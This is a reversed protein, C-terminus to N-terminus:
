WGAKWHSTPSSWCLGQLEDCGQPCCDACGCFPTLNELIYFLYSVTLLARSSIGIAPFWVLRIVLVAICEPVFEHGQDEEEFMSTQCAEFLSMFSLLRFNGMRTVILEHFLVYLFSLRLHNLSFSHVISAFFCCPVISIQACGVGRCYILHFSISKLTQSALLSIPSFLCACGKGHQLRHYLRFLVDAVVLYIAARKWSKFVFIVVFLIEGSVSLTRATAFPSVERVLFSNIYLSIVLSQHKYIVDSM